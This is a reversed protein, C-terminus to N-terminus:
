SKLFFHMLLYRGLEELTALPDDGSRIAPEPLEPRFSEPDDM